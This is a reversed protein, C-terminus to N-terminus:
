GEEREDNAPFRICIGVMPIPMFYLTHSCRDWYLGVWFDYWAFIFKIGMEIGGM